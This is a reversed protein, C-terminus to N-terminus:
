MKLRRPRGRPFVKLPHGAERLEAACRACTSAPVGLWAAVSKLTPMSNWTECFYEVDITPEDGNQRNAQRGGGTKSKPKKKTSM